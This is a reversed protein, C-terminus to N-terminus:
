GGLYARRMADGHRLTDVDGQFSVQGSSIVVGRTAVKLAFEANQEAIVITLGLNLLKKFMELM